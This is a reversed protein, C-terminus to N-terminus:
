GWNEKIVETPLKKGKHLVEIKYYNMALAELLMDSRSTVVVGENKHKEARCTSSAIFCDNADDWSFSTKWSELTLEALLQLAHDAEKTAWADFDAKDKDTLKVAAFKFNGFTTGNNKAM